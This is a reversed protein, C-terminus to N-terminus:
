AGQKDNDENKAHDGEHTAKTHHSKGNDDQELNERSDLGDKNNPRPRNNDISPAKSQHNEQHRSDKM